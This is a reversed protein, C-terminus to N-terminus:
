SGFIPIINQQKIGDFEIPTPFPYDKIGTIAPDNQFVELYLGEKGPLIGPISGAEYYYIKNEFAFVRGKPPRLLANDQQEDHYYVFTRGNWELVGSDKIEGNLNLHLKVAEFDVNFYLSVPSMGESQFPVYSWGISQKKEGAFTKHLNLLSWQALYAFNENLEEAYIKKGAEFIHLENLTDESSNIRQYESSDYIASGFKCSFSTPEADPRESDNNESACGSFIIAFVIIM